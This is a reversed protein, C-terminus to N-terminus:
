DFIDQFTWQQIHSFLIREATALPLLQLLDQLLSRRLVLALQRGDGQQTVRQRSQTEEQKRHQVEDGGEQTVGGAVADRDEEDEQEQGEAGEGVQERARMLGGHLGDLM